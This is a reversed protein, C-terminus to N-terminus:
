IERLRVQAFRELKNQRILSQLDNVYDERRTSYQLLGNALHLGNLEEGRSRAKTRLTRFHNYAAHTNLNRLYSRISDYLTEFRRVEYTAGPPRGQPIIGTGPTFTWEGFLNNGLQSFRSTGWASENAAQALALDAPVLDIRRRLLTIAEATEPVKKVDYRTKLTMLIHQQSANLKQGQDLIVSIKDLAEKEARIEANALLVMPLLTQFFLRKKRQASRIEALKKPLSEIIIPPVGQDLQSMDYRHLFFTKELESLSDAEIIRVSSGKYVPAASENCSALMLAAASVFLFLKGTKRTLYTM